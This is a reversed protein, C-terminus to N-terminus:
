PCSAGECTRDEDLQVSLESATAPDNLMDHDGLLNRLQFPDTALDYYERAVTEGGEYYETYQFTKTITSAWVPAPYYVIVFVNWYM